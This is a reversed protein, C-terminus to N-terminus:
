GSLSADRPDGGFIIAYQIACGAAFLEPGVDGVNKFVACPAKDNDTGWYPEGYSPVTMSWAPQWFQVDRNDCQVRDLVVLGALDPENGGAASTRSWEFRLRAAGFQCTVSALVPGPVPLISEFVLGSVGYRESSNWYDALLKVLRNSRETIRSLNSQSETILKWDGEKIPLFKMLGGPQSSM